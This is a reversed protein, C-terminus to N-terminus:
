TGPVVTVLLILEDNPPRQIAARIPRRLTAPAGDVHRGKAIPSLAPPLIIPQDQGGFSPPHSDNGSCIECPTSVILAEQAVLEDYLYSSGIVFVVGILTTTAHNAM